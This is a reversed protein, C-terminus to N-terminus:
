RDRTYGQRNSWNALIAAVADAVRDLPFRQAVQTDFVCKIMLKKVQKLVSLLKLPSQQLMWNPLLFGSINAVPMMLDRIPIQIPEDALTGYLVLKGDLGLCRVVLSSLEGGVCDLAYSVGKGNTLRFVEAILDQHNTEVVADAGLSRLEDSNEGSRVVCLTKVGHLKAMRVISKGLASGAATLLLWAGRPVCLVERTLVYATVPNVFFMSGQEDSIDVPLAVARRADVVTYEQWAGNPPGSAVAVRKGRLRRALLGSGTADVIGMGEGGLAFPPQPCANKLDPDYYVQAGEANGQNWIIRRLATHYTGHLFNLDSPNVPSKLMRVRIQGPGPEPVPLDSIQIDSVNRTYTTIGASKMSPKRKSPLEAGDNHLM